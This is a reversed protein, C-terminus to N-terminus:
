WQLERAHMVRDARASARLWYLLRYSERVDRWGVIPQQRRHICALFNEYYDRLDETQWVLPLAVDSMSRVGAVYSRIEVSSALGPYDVLQLLAECGNRMRLSAMVWDEVPGSHFFNRTRGYLQDIPGSILHLLECAMLVMQAQLDSRKTSFQTSDWTLKLEYHSITTDSLIKEQLLKHNTIVKAQSLVCLPTPSENCRSQDPHRIPHTALVPIGAELAADVWHAKDEIDLLILGDHLNADLPNEPQTLLLVDPLPAVVQAHQALESASGLAMLVTM